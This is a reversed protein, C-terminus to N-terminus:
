NHLAYGRPRKECFFLYRKDVYHSQKIEKFIKEGVLNAYVFLFDGKQKDNEEIIKLKYYTNGCFDSTKDYVKKPEKNVIQGIIEKLNEVSEVQKNEKLKVLKPKIPILL